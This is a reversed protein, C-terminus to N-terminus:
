FSMRKVRKVETLKGMKSRQRRRSKKLYKTVDFTSKGFYNFIKKAISIAAEFEPEVTINVGKVKLRMDDSPEHSRAIIKISPNLKRANSTIVEAAMEKPLAIVLTSAREVDAKELIDINSADGFIVRIGRQKCYDRTEVNSDIVVFPINVKELARGVYSGVRGFGCIVVHDVIDPQDIDVEREFRVFFLKYLKFYRARVKEKIKYYLDESRSALFPTILISIISVIINLSYFDKDIWQNKLGIQSLIFTFEGGQMMILSVILAKRTEKEILLIAFFITLIKIVLLGIIVLTVKLINSLLFSPSLLSGLAVFFVVSFLDRLPRIESFIEHNVFSESIMMGALFAGLTYSLGIAEAFYAVIMCFVFSLILLIESSNLKSIAEFIMPILNKGLLISFTVFLFSKALSELIDYFGYGTASFVTNILVALVVMAIDQLILWSCIIDTTRIDKKTVKEVLHLVVVTASNSFATSLFLAEQGSFGFRSFIFTSLGIFLVIQIIAGLLISKRISFLKNIHFEVGITFLLLAVGIQALNNSIDFHVLKSFIPLSILIGGVLYGTLPPQKLKIALYGGLFAILLIIVIERVFLYEM